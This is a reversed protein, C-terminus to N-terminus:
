QLGLIDMKLILNFPENIKAVFQLAEILFRASVKAFINLIKQSATKFLWFIAYVFEFVAALYLKENLLLVNVFFQSMLVKKQSSYKFKHVNYSCKDKTQM